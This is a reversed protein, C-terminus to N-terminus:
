KNLQAKLADVEAKLEQIAKLLVTTLKSYQVGRLEKQENVVDYFCLDQRVQEVDEAILGYQIDGDIEETYNGEENKKRYKFSVPNLQYLWSTDTINNIETKSARVSPIYGFNGLNDVFVDRNTAGLVNTYVGAALLNRTLVLDGDGTAVFVATGAANFGQFLSNGNTQVQAVIAQQSSTALVELKGNNLRSTRNVMLNGSSDIRARETSATGFVLSSGAQIAYLSTANSQDWLNVRETTGDSDVITFRENRLQIRGNVDLPKQPSTTGIGLRGSADLTM